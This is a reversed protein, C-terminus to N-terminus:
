YSLFFLSCQIIIIFYQVFLVFFSQELQFSLVYDFLKDLSNGIVLQGIFFYFDLHYFLLSFYLLLLSVSNQKDFKCNFIIIIGLIPFSTTFSVSECSQLAQTSIDKRFLLQAIHVLVASLACIRQNQKFVIVQAYFYSTCLTPIIYRGGSDTVQLPLLLPNTLDHYTCLSICSVKLKSVLFVTWLKDSLIFLLVFLLIYWM